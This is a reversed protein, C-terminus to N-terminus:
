YIEIFLDITVGDGSDIWSFELVAYICINTLHYLLIMM